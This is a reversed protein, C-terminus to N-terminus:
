VIHYSLSPPMSQDGGILACTQVGQRRGLQIAADILPSRKSPSMGPPGLLADGVPYSPPPTVLSPASGVPSPSAMVIASGLAILTMFSEM